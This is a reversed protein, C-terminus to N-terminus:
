DDTLDTGITVTLDVPQSPDEDFVVAAGIAAGFAVARAESQTQHYAVVTETVGFEQANGIVSIEAGAAVLTPLMRDRNEADGTGDLVQVTPRAGPRYGIPLPVMELAKEAPWGAQEEPISYIPNLPDFGVPTMPAISVDAIGTGLSRLYPPLQEDFPLTAALVDEALGVQDLWARWIADQRTFRNADVEDPNKWRYVAALTAADFERAGAEIVVQEVGEADLEVLDDDLRFPVPEILQFWAELGAPDIVMSDDTFGFGFFEGVVRELGGVGEQSYVEGLFVPAGVAPTILLDPSLTVLSGGRELATRALVTIGILSDTEDVHAILMTPTPTAFALFGADTPDTPLSVDRGDTTDLVAKTGERWLLFVIVGAAIVLLPFVFRFFPNAKPAPRRRRRRRPGTDTGPPEGAGGSPPDATPETDLVTM